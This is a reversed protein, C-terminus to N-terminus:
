DVSAGGLERLWLGAITMGTSARSAGPGGRRPGCSTATSSSWGTGRGAYRQRIKEAEAKNLTAARAGLEAGAAPRSPRPWNRRYFIPRRKDKSGDQGAEASQLGNRIRVVGPLPLFPIGAAQSLQDLKVGASVVTHNDNGLWLVHRIAPLMYLITILVNDTNNRIFTWETYPFYNSLKNFCWRLRTDSVYNYINSSIYFFLRYVKVKDFLM